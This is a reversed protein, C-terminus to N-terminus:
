KDYWGEDQPILRWHIDSYASYQDYDSSTNSWLWYDEKDAQKIFGTKMHPPLNVPFKIKFYSSDTLKGREPIFNCENSNESLIIWRRVKDTAEIKFYRKTGPANAIKIKFNDRYSVPRKGLSSLTIKSGNYLSDRNINSSNLKLYPIGFSYDFNIGQGPFAKNQIYYEKHYQVEEGWWDRLIRSHFYESYFDIVKQESFTNNFINFDEIKIFFGKEKSKYQIVINDNTNLNAIKNISLSHKKKGDLYMDMKDLKNHAIVIHHWRNDMLNSTKLEETYHGDTIRWFLNQNQLVLSWGLKEPSESNTIITASEKPIQTLRPIRIWFAVTFDQFPGFNVTSNNIVKICDSTNSQIKFAKGGRGNTILNGTTEINEHSGTVDIVRTEINENSDIVDIVKSQVVKLSLISDNQTIFSLENILEEISPFKDWDFSPKIKLENNVRKYYDSTLKSGLIHYKNGIYTSIEKLIEDDVKCMREQVQPLIIKDFYKKYGTGFFDGVNRLAVQASKYLRKEAGDIFMLLENKENENLKSKIQNFQYDIIAKIAKIQNELCRRVQRLRHGCQLYYNAWWQYISFNYMKDWLNNRRVIAKNIFNEIKTIDMQQLDNKIKFYIAIPLTFEPAIELLAIFGLTEIASKIDHHFIAENVINLAAGVWPVISIIDVIKDNFEKKEADVTFDNVITTVWTQFNLQINTLKNFDSNASHIVRPFYSYVKGHNNIAESFSNSLIIRTNKTDIKPDYEQALLYHYSTPKKVYRIESPTNSKPVLSLNTEKITTDVDKINKPFSSPLRTFDIDKFFEANETSTSIHELIDIEPGVEESFNLNQFYTKPIIKAFDDKLVPAIIDKTILEDASKQSYCCFIVNKVDKAINQIEQLTGGTEPINNKIKELNVRLRNKDQGDIFGSEATYIKDFDIKLKYDKKKNVKYHRRCPIGMEGKANTLKKAFATESINLLNRVNYAASEKDGYKIKLRDYMEPFAKSFDSKQAQAIEDCVGKYCKIWGKELDKYDASGLKTIKADVGGFVISEEIDQNIMSTKSSGPISIDLPISKASRMGYLAFLAHTLEHFLTLAPDQIISGYATVINPNFRIESSAGRGNSEGSSGQPGVSSCISETLDSGPGFILVNKMKQENEKTYIITNPEYKGKKSKEPFAISNSLQELFNNGSECSAIRKFLTTINKLFQNKQEDTSLYDDSGIDESRYYRYPVVWVAPIIQFMKFMQKATQHPRAMVINIDDVSDQFNFVKIEM